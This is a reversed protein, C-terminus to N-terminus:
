PSRARLGPMLGSQFNFQSRWTGLDISLWQAVSAPSTAREWLPKRTHSSVNHAIDACFSKNCMLLVELEKVNHVLFKWFGIPWCTSQKRNSGYGTSPMLIQGKSRRYVRNGIGRPKWWNCKIKVYRNTGPFKKDEKQCDQPEHPTQPCGYDSYSIAAVEM